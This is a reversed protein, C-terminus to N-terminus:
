VGAKITQDFLNFCLEEIIGCHIGMERLTDRVNDRTMAIGEEDYKQDLACLANARAMDFAEDIRDQAYM